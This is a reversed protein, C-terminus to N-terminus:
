VSIGVSNWAARVAKQEKSGNGFDSGAVQYTTEAAEQFMSYRNLKRLTKYWISGAKEWAYGGIEVAAIFFAHNPIGSNIHVGGNDLWDTFKDNMHKPQPDTGLIPDDEYAKEGKMTRVAKAKLGPGILEDGLLWDAKKVTQKKRWQKVLSGMVDAFHENLAGPEDQYILNSEYMVVGHTFEHGAVDLAKTYRLFIDGDGDGYIMEEGNWMANNVNEGIHVSSILTMGNADISNRDFNKKFFNYIHGANGYAENTSLDKVKKQGEERALKGPLPFYQNKLDYVLRHKRARPSPVAAMAPMSTLTSRVARAEVGVTIAKIALRRIKPDPSEAIREVIYPPLFCHNPNFINKM